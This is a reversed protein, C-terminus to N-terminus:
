SYSEKYQTIIASIIALEDGTYRVRIRIYKDRIRTQKLQGWYDTEVDFPVVMEGKKMLDEPVPTMAINIPPEDIWTENKEAYNISPIQIDWIDEDYKCNGLRRGYEIKKEWCETADNHRIQIGHSKYYNKLQERNPDDDYVFPTWEYGDIPYAKIHTAVNFGNSSNDYVIESGSMAQYDQSKSTLRQYVDYLKNKRNVHSVTLPFMVSKPNRNPNVKNMYNEDYTIDYGNNSYTEKTKEQRYYMNPKENKFDYVEGVVEFHFSEPQTKNAIMKLNNFIKHVQPNDAVIFEFEFPHQEDYWNCWNNQKNHQWLFNHESYKLNNISYDNDFSYFTNNINGSYSPIWSYFTTFKKTIENYCLNWGVYDDNIVKFFTFMIDQKHKNYHTKVNLKIVNPQTEQEDLVLNDKLFKQLRLDSLVEFSDGYRWIKKAVTDIGYIGTATQIVSDAWQSGYETSLFKPKDSLVKDVDIYAFGSQSNTAIARENVEIIAIAHEFVCILYGDYYNILKVIEGYQRTYDQFATKRFTRFNNIYSDKVAIDSYVIRNTFNTKLAPVDEQLMYVQEGLSKEYAGNQVYSDSIKNSVIGGNSRLPYFSRVQNFIARENINSGDTSRMCLNTSSYVKTIFVHGLPVANVDSRNLLVLSDTHVSMDRKDLVRYKFSGSTDGGQLDNQTDYKTRYGKYWTNHDAIDTNVPFSPDAFNRNMTHAFNCVFCDGRFCEVTNNASSIRNSIPYYESVDDKRNAIMKDVNTTIVDYNPVTINVVDYVESENDNYKKEEIGVYPGWIGRCAWTVDVDDTKMDVGDIQNKKTTDAIVRFNVFPVKVKQAEAANGAVSSYVKNKARVAATNEPVGIIYASKPSNNAKVFNSNIIFKGNATTTNFRGIKEYQLEGGTFLQNFQSQNIEYEPVILADPKPDDKNYLKNEKYTPDINFQQITKKVQESGIFTPGLKILPTKSFDTNTPYNGTFVNTNIEKPISYNLFGNYVKVSDYTKNTFCETFWGIPETKEESDNNTGSNTLPITFNFDKSADFPITKYVSEWITKAQTIANEGVIELEDTKNGEIDINVRYYYPKESYTQESDSDDYVLRKVNYIYTTGSQYTDFTSNDQGSMNDVYLLPLYSFDQDSGIRVGQALITKIRKQRVFFYGVVNKPLNETLIFKIGYAQIRSLDYNKPFKIIGYKNSIDGIKGTINFVPTLSYDDLIYVIGFRYLESPWYGVFNYINNVNYYGGFSEYEIGNLTTIKTYDPITFDDNVNGIEKIIFEFNINNRSFDQLEKYQITKQQINGYFLINQNISQTKAKDVILYNTNITTSDADLVQELGTIVFTSSGFELGNFTVEFYRDLKQYTTVINGSADSSNRSYYVYVRNFQRPINSLTFGVQKYSNENEVGGDISFPDNLNGKHCTVIGSQGVFDSENDDSDALTFYFTYTGVKLNGGTSVGDFKIDIISNVIKHLSTSYEFDESFYVNTDNDGSRDVIEYDNDGYISFRTNILRPINKNDTFILNVSGDYSKQCDIQLPHETDFNLKETTFNEVSNGDWNTYNGIVYNKLPSYKYILKGQSNPYDPSPYTGIESVGANNVSFIYLIGGFEKLGIPVFGDKLQVFNHGDPIKSNGVDNQLILENGNYTILTGNLCNTLVNNPTALPHSDMVLGDQFTNTANM